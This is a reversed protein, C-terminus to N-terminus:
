YEKSVLKKLNSCMFAGKIPFDITGVPFDLRSLVSVNFLWFVVILSQIAFLTLAKRYTNGFLQLLVKKFM